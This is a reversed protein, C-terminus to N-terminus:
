RHVPFEEEVFSDSTIEMKKKVPLNENIKESKIRQLAAIEPECCGPLKGFLMKPESRARDVSFSFALFFDM